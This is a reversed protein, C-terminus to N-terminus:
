TLRMTLRHHSCYRSSGHGSERASNTLAAMGPTTLAHSSPLQRETHQTPKRLKVSSHISWPTIRTVGGSGEFENARFITVTIHVSLDQFKREKASCLEALRNFASHCGRFASDEPVCRRTRPYIHVSKGWFWQFIYVMLICTQIYLM